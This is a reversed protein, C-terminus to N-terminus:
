QLSDVVALLEDISGPASLMYLMDEKQWLLAGGEGDLPELAVGSVGDITVERFTVLERPIPLLLTSAWDISSAIRHAQRPDTGLVQLVAEGLAQADVDQPYEVWPSPAQMLTYGEGAGPWSQQVGPFVTVHVVAGDLEDPLLTPDAGATEMLARAAALDIRLRGEGGDIVNIAAPQGLGALTRITMGTELEAEVLSDVPWAAGPERIVEMEGPAMGEEALQELMAMQEPSVSIPAFKQVRFLGLFDSAAARVAPFSFLVAIFLVAAFGFAYIRRRNM